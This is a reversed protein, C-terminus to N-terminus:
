RCALFDARSRLELVPAEAPCGFRFPFWQGVGASVFLQSSGRTYTGWVYKGPTLAQTTAPGGLGIQGGHTHGALVLDFGADCAAHFGDPRHCLLIKFAGPPSGAAATSVTEAYTRARNGRRGPDDAGALYLPADGSVLTHGESVLLHVSSAAYIERAKTIGNGYEHNGLCAYVGLRPQLGAVIALADPLLTLDDAIDGTLVVLDPKHRAARSVVRELRGPRVFAALHPDSVHLIRFGELQRPLQPLSLPLLEVRAEALSVMAGTAVGTSTLLPLAAAGGTLLLRRQRNVGQDQPRPNAARAEGRRRLYMLGASIPLTAILAIAPLLVLVVGFTAALSLSDLGLPRRAFEALCWFFMGAAPLLLVARRIGRIRWWDPNLFRLLLVLPLGIALMTVLGYFYGLLFRM